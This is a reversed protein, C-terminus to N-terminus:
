ASPTPKGTLRAIEDRLTHAKIPKTLYGDVQLDPSIQHRVSASDQATILIVITHRGTQRDYARIQKLVEIGNIGPMLVDLLILDITEHQIISLASAGDEAILSEYGLRNLMVKMLRAITPNDDVILISETKM